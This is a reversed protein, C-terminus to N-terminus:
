NWNGASSITSHYRVLVKPSSRFHLTGGDVTPGPNWSYDAGLNTDVAAFTEDDNVWGVSSIKLNTWSLAERINLERVGVRLAQETATDSLMEFKQIAVSAVMGMIIMM